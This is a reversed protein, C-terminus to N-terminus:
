RKTRGAWQEVSGAALELEDEGGARRAIARCLDGVDPAMLRALAHSMHGSGPLRSGLALGPGLRAARAAM